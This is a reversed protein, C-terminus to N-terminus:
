NAPYPTLSAELVYTVDGEDPLAAFCGVGFAEKVINLNESFERRTDLDTRHHNLNRNGIANHKEIAYTPDYGHKRHMMYATALTKAGRGKTLILGKEGFAMRTESGEILIEECLEKFARGLEASRIFYLCRETAAKCQTITQKNLAKLCEDGFHLVPIDTTPPQLDEGASPLGGSNQAIDYLERVRKWGDAGFLKVFFIIHTDLQQVLKSRILKRKGEPHGNTEMEKTERAIAEDLIRHYANKVAIWANTDAVQCRGDPGTQAMEVREEFSPVTRGKRRKATRGVNIVEKDGGTSLTPARSRLNM